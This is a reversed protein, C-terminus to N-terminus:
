PPIKARAARITARMRALDSDLKAKTTRFTDLTAKDFAVIDAAIAKQHKQVDKMSKTFSDKAAKKLKGSKASLEQVEKNQHALETRGEEKFAQRAKELAAQAAKTQEEVSAQAQTVADTLKSKADALEAKAKELDRQVEETKARAQREAQQVREDAKKQVEAIKKKQEEENGCAPAFLALLLPAVLVFRPGFRM